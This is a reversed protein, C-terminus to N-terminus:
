ENIKNGKEDKGSLGNNWAAIIAADDADKGNAPNVPLPDDSNRANLAGNNMRASLYEAQVEDDQISKGERIFQAATKMSGSTEGLKLHAEVRKKEETVGAAKGENYILAYLEPYKKQMEEKNMVVGENSNPNLHVGGGAVDSATNALSGQGLDSNPAESNTGPNYVTNILAAARTMYDNKFYEKKAAARLNEITKEIQISANVILANRDFKLGNNQSEDDKNIQELENAYGNEIIENGIYYTEADMLDRVKKYDIGSIFSYTSGMTASLRELYEAEKKLAIYDGLIISWPNHKMMISNEFVVIKYNKDITRPALMIYGAMSAALGTIKVTINHTKAYDRILNFVAIGEYVEGGPSNIAIEIDEGPQALKLQQEVEKEGITDSFWSSRAIAKNISFRIM